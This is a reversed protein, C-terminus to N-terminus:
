FLETDQNEPSQPYLGVLDSTVQTKGDQNASLRRPLHRATAHIHINLCPQSCVRQYVLM